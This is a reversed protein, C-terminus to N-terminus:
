RKKIDDKVNCNTQQQSFPLGIMRVGCIGELTSNYGCHTGFIGISPPSFVEM